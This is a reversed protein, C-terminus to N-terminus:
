THSSNLRTSKRDEPNGEVILTRRSPTDAISIRFMHSKYRAPYPLVSALAANGPLGLLSNLRNAVPFFAVLHTPFTSTLISLQRSIYVAPLDLRPLEPFHWSGM